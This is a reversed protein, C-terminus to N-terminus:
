VLERSLALSVRELFGSESASLPRWPAIAIAGSGLLLSTSEGKAGTAGDRARGSPDSFNSLDFVQKAQCNFSVLGKRSPSSTSQSQRFKRCFIVVIWDFTNANHLLVRKMYLSIQMPIGISSCALFM